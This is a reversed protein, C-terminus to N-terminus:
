FAAFANLPLLNILVLLLMLVAMIKKTEKKM